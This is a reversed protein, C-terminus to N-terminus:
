LNSAKMSSQCDLFDKLIELIWGQWFETRWSELFDGYIEFFEIFIKTILFQQCTHHFSGVKFDAFNRKFTWLDGVIRLFIKGFIWLTKLIKFNEYAKKSVICMGRIWRYSQNINCFMNRMGHKMNFLLLPYIISIPFKRYKFCALVVAKVDSWCGYPTFDLTTIFQFCEEPTWYVM